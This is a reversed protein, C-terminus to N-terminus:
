VARATAYRDSIRLPGFHYIIDFDGYKDRLTRFFGISAYILSAARVAQEMKAPNPDNQFTLQPNYNIPLCVSSGWKPCLATSLAGILACHRAAYCLGRPVARRHRRQRFRDFFLPALVIDFDHCRDELYKDLWFQNIFSSEKWENKNLRELEAHYTPGAGAKFAAVLAKTQALAEASVM